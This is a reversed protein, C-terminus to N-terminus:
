QQEQAAFVGNGHCEIVHVHEGGLHERGFQAHRQEAYSGHEATHTRHDSRLHRQQYTCLHAAYLIIIHTYM